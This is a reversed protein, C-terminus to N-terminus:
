STTRFHEYNLNVKVNDSIPAYVKMNNSYAFVFNVNPNNEILWALFRMRNRTDQLVTRTEMEYGNTGDYLNSIAIADDVVLFDFGFCILENFGMAIAYQMAVMGANSRPTPGKTLGYVEPPEYRDNEHPFICRNLHTYSQKIEEIMKDDIAVLYDPEFDRYLANCGFITGVDRLTELDLDKRSAGNGIICATTTKM